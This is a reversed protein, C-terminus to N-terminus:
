PEIPFPGYPVICPDRWAGDVYDMQFMHDSFVDGFGPDDFNVSSLRSSEALRCAIPANMATEPTLHRPSHPAPAGIIVEGARGNLGRHPRSPRCQRPLRAGQRTRR